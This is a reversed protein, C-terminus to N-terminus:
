KSVEEIDSMSTKAVGVGAFCDRPKRPVFTLRIFLKLSPTISPLPSVEGKLSAGEIM